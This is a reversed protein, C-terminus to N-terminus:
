NRRTTQPSDSKIIIDQANLYTSMLKEISESKINAVIEDFELEPCVEGFNAFWALIWKDEDEKRYLVSKESVDFNLNGIYYEDLIFLEVSNDGFPYEISYKEMNNIEKALYSEYRYKITITGSTAENKTFKDFDFVTFKIKIGKGYDDIKALESEFDCNWTPNLSKMVVPTKGSFALAKCDRGIISVEVFGDSTGGVDSVMLNNGRIVTLHFTDEVTKFYELSDIFNCFINLSKRNKFTSSNKNTYDNSINTKSIMDRLIESFYFTRDVKGNRLNDFYKDFCESKPLQLNLASLVESTFHQCNAKFQHYQVSGNYKCIIETLKRFTQKVNEAGRIEGIDIAAITKDSKIQQISDSRVIVTSSNFWEIKWEGILLGTHVIGMDANSFYSMLKTMFPSNGLDSILLKVRLFPECNLKKSNQKVISSMFERNLLRDECVLNQADVELDGTMRADKPTRNNKRLFDYYKELKKKAMGVRDKELLTLRNASYQVDTTTPYATADIIAPTPSISPKSFLTENISEFTKNPKNVPNVSTSNQGAQGDSELTDESVNLVLRNSDDEFKVRGSKEDDIKKKMIVQELFVIASINDIKYKSMKQQLLEKEQQIKAYNTEKALGEFLKGNFDNNMTVANIVTDNKFNYHICLCFLDRNSCERLPKAEAEEIEDSPPSIEESFRIISSTNGM